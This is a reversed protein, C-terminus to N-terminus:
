CSVTQITKKQSTTPTIAWALSCFTHDVCATWAHRTKVQATLTLAVRGGLVSKASLTNSRLPYEIDTGLAQPSATDLGRPSM